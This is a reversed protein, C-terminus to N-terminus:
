LERARAARGAPGTGALEEAAGDFETIVAQERNRDGKGLLAAMRDRIQRWGATGVVRIVLGAAASAVIRILEDDMGDGQEDPMFLPGAGAEDFGDPAIHMLIDPEPKGNNTEPLEVLGNSGQQLPRPQDILRAFLAEALQRRDVPARKAADSGLWEK